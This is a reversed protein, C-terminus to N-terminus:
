YNHQSYSLACVVPVDMRSFVPPSLFVPAEEKLWDLSELKQPLIQELISVLQGDEESKADPNPIM